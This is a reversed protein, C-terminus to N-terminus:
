QYPKEGTHRRMHVKLTKKETFRGGCHTCEWPKVGSHTKIHRKLNGRTSFSANCEYCM